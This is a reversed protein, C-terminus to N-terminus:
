LPKQPQHDKHDILPISLNRKSDPEEQNPIYIKTATSNIRKREKISSRERKKSQTRLSNAKAELALKHINLHEKVKTTLTTTTRTPELTQPDRNLPSSPSKRPLSTYTEERTTDQHEYPNTTDVELTMTNEIQILSSEETKIITYDEQPLTTLANRISYINAEIPLINRIGNLFSSPDHTVTNEIEIPTFQTIKQDEWPNKIELKFYNPNIPVPRQSNETTPSSATERTLSNNDKLYFVKEPSILNMLNNERNSDSKNLTTRHTLYKIPKEKPTQTFKTESNYTRCDKADYTIEFEM